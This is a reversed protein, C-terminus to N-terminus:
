EYRKGELEKRIKRIIYYYAMEAQKESMEMRMGIEKFDLEEFVRANLIEQERKKLKLITGILKGEELVRILQEISPVANYKWPLHELKYKRYEQEFDTYSRELIGLRETEFEMQQHKKEMYSIRKNKVATVLYATFRNQVSSGQESGYEKM